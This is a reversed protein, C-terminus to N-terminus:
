SIDRSGQEQNSSIQLTARHTNLSPSLIHPEIHISDPPHPDSDVRDLLPEWFGPVRFDICRLYAIQNGEDYEDFQVVGVIREVHDFKVDYRARLKPLDGSFRGVLAIDEGLKAISVIIPPPFEAAAQAGLVQLQGETIGASRALESSGQIDNIQSAMSDRAENAGVVENLLSQYTRQKKWAEKIWPYISTNIIQLLVL